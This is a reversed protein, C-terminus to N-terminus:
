KKYVNQEQISGLKEWLNENDDYEDLQFHQINQQGQNDKQNVFFLKDVCIKFADDIMRPMLKKLINSSEELCPNTNVEILWLHLNEDIIFDFGFIEFCYKGQNSQQWKFNVFMTQSHNTEIWNKRTQMVKRILQCNNGDGLYYKYILNFKNIQAKKSRQNIEKVVTVFM